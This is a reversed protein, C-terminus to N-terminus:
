KSPGVAGYRDTIAKTLNSAFQKVMGDAKKRILPQGFEGIRGMIQADTDM